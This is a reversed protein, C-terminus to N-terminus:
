KKKSMPSLYLSTVDLNSMSPTKKSTGQDIKSTEPPWQPSVLKYLSSIDLDAMSSTIKKAPQNIVSLPAIETKKPVSISPMDSVKTTLVSRWAKDSLRYKSQPQTNYPTATIDGSASTLSSALKQIYKPSYEDPIDSVKVAPTPKKPAAPKSDDSSKASLASKDNGPSKPADSKQPEKSSSAASAVSKAVMEDWENKAKRIKVANAAITMVSTSVKSMNNLNSALWAITENPATPNKQQKQAQQPTLKKSDKIRRNNEMLVWRDQAYQLEENSFYKANKMIEEIDGNSLLKQKLKQIKAAEKLDKEQRKVAKREEERKKQQAKRAKALAKDRAKQKKAEARALKKDFSSGVPGRKSEESDDSEGKNLSQKWNAKVESRSHASPLLPYPPGNRKGWKMGMIGHHALYDDIATMTMQNRSNPM